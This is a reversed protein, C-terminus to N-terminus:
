FGFEELIVKMEKKIVERLKESSSTKFYKISFKPNSGFIDKLQHFQEDNVYVDFFDHIEDKIVDTSLINVNYSKAINLFAAKDKIPSVELKAM